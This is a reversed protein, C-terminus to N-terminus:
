PERIMGWMHPGDPPVDWESRVRFGLHSYYAVNETSRPRSTCRCGTAAASRASRTSSRRGSGTASGTRTRPWCTSTGTRSPRPRCRSRRVWRRSAPSCSPARRCRTPSRTPTCRPGAPRSSSGSRRRLRRHHVHVRPHDFPRRPVRVDRCRQRPLRRARPLVLAAAPDDVFATSATRCVQRLDAMVAPRVSTMTRGAAHLEVDHGDQCEREDTAPAGTRSPGAACAPGPRPPAGRAPGPPRAECATPLRPPPRAQLHLPTRCGRPLTAASPARRSGRNGGGVSRDGPAFTVVSRFM